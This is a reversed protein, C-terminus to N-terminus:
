LKSRVEGVLKHMRIALRALLEADSRLRPILPGDKSPEPPQDEHYPELPGVLDTAFQILEQEMKLLGQIATALQDMATNTAPADAAQLVKPMPTRRFPQVGGTAPTGTNAMDKALAMELDKELDNGMGNGLEQNVM